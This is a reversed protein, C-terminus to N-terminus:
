FIFDIFYEFFPESYIFNGQGGTGSPPARKREPAGPETDHDDDRRRKVVGQMEKQFETRLVGRVTELITFTFDKMASAIESSVRFLAHTVTIMCILIYM